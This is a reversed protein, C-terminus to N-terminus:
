TQLDLWGTHQAEVGMGCFGLIKDLMERVMIMYYATWPEFGSRPMHSKHHSLTASPLNEGLVETEGAITTREV